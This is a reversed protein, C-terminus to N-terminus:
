SVFCDFWYYDDEEFIQMEDTPSTYEATALYGLHFRFYYLDILALWISNDKQDHRLSLSRNIFRAHCYRHFAYLLCLYAHLTIFSLM